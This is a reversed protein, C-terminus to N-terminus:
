VEDFEARFLRCVGIPDAVDPLQRHLSELHSRLKAQLEARTAARLLPDTVACEGVDYRLRLEWCRHVGLRADPDDTTVSVLELSFDGDDCRIVVRGPSVPGVSWGPPLLEGPFGDWELSM